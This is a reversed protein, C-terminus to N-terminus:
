RVRAICKENGRETLVCTPVSQTGFIKPLLPRKGNCVVDRDCLTGVHM